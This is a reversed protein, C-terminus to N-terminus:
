PDARKFHAHIQWWALAGIIAVFMSYWAAYVSMFGVSTVKALYPMVLLSSAYGLVLVGAFLAFGFARTRRWILILLVVSAIAAGYQIAKPLIFYLFGM